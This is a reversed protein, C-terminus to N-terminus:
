ETQKLRFQDEGDMMAILWIIFWDIPQLSPHEVVQGEVLHAHQDGHRFRSAKGSGRAPEATHL